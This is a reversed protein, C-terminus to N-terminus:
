KYLFLNIFIFIFKVTNHLLTKLTKVSERYHINVTHISLNLIRAIEQNTYGECRMQTVIRQQSPLRNIVSRLLESKHHREAYTYLDDDYQLQKQAIKYNNIIAKRNNRILNLISHKLMGYLYGHLSISVLHTKRINWLKIFLQQVIDEADAQNKLYRMALTYLRPQYRRYIIEFASRDDERLLNLLETDTLVEQLSNQNLSM